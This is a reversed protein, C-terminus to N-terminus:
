GLSALQAALSGKDYKVYKGKGKDIEHYRDWFRGYLPEIMGQVERALSSRVEREMTLSKHKASLEEFSANFSKFKEKIADKDKSSLGKIVAASDIIGASGSPPRMSRNTYQVDLLHSSPDRWAELYLGTGKKRWAELRTASTSASLLSLLDSSRVMRDVVSVNNAIFVGLVSKGKLLVRAKTELNSLLIDITDTVYSALLQHGDAGVDISKLTSTSNSSGTSPPTTWNGDGISTMISALPRSYFTMEQLRIMTEATIPVSAGDTPLVMLAQIKRRVGDLLDSLSSKATERIPKVADSLPGMLEGTKQDLRLALPTVIDVVEYALFCDTTINAKIHMNLERLTKAFETLPKRCTIDFVFGWEDQLFIQRINEYEALFIGELASAFMGIGNTGQSYMVSPSKKRTTNISATALNQLSSALYPGRIDAFMRAAPTESQGPQSTRSSSSIFANIQSLQQIQDQALGPFPLEVIMLVQRISYFFASLPRERKTTYHLPEVPQMNEKLIDLFLDQLQINGQSLLNSFETAVQHNTRLRSVNLESLSTHIRQM